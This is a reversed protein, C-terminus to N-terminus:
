VLELDSARLARMGAPALEVGSRALSRVEERRAGGFRMVRM